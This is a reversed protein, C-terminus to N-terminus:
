RVCVSDAAAVVLTVGNCLAIRHADICLGAFVYVGSQVTTAVLAAQSDFVCRVCRCSIILCSLPQQLRPVQLGAFLGAPGEEKIIKRVVGLFGLSEACVPCALVCLQRSRACSRLHALILGPEVQQEKHEESKGSSSSKHAAQQKVAVTYLPYTLALSVLGPWLM